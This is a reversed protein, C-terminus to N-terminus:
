RGRRWLYSAGFVNHQPSPPPAIPGSSEWDTPTIDGQCQQTHCAGTIASSPSRLSPKRWRVKEHRLAAEKKGAHEEKLLM